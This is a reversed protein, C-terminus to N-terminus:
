PPLWSPLWNPDGWGSSGSIPARTVYQRLAFNRRSRCPSQNQQLASIM